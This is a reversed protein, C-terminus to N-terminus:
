CRSSRRADTRILSGLAQIRLDTDPLYGEPVWIAPPPPPLRYPLLHRRRDHGPQRGRPRWLLPHRPTPPPVRPSRPRSRRRRSRSRHRRRRRSPRSLSHLRRRCRTGGCCTTASCGSRLRSGCALARAEGVPERSVDARAPQDDRGRGSIARSIRATRWGSCRRTRTPERESRGRGGEARQGRAGVARGRDSGERAGDAAVRARRAFRSRVRCRRLSSCPWPTSSDIRFM